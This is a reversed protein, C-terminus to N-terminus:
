KSEIKKLKLQQEIASWDPREALQTDFAKRYKTKLTPTWETAGGLVEKIFVRDADRKLDFYAETYEELSQILAVAIFMNKEHLFRIDKLNFHQRLNNYIWAIASKSHNLRRTAKRIEFSLEKLHEDSICPETILPPEEKASLSILMQKECDIFYRRAQKGKENREIMSLEKAMDLTIHYDKKNHGGSGSSQKGLGSLLIFDQNEVFSYEKIRNTIWAAFVKGVDLFSHLERANILQISENNVTGTFVPILANNSM